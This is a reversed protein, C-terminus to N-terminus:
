ILLIDFNPVSISTNGVTQRAM